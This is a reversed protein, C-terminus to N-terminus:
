KSNKDADGRAVPKQRNQRPQRLPAVRRWEREARAQFGTLRVLPESREARGFVGGSHLWYGAPTFRVRHYLASPSLRIVTVVTGSAVLARAKAALRRAQWFRGAVRVSRRRAGPERFRLFPQAPPALPPLPRLDARSGRAMGARLGALLPEIDGPELGGAVMHRLLRARQEAVLQACTPELAEPPAHKRLFLVTSAGIDELTVPARDAQRRPSAAFGHQVQALPVVATKLGKGALRMNLDTEDHFFAFGPDFGGILAVHQRRFACNTGMTKVAHDAPPDPIFPATGRVPIPLDQGTPAVLAARFQYSIGNRGRVYGGAAGVSPDAFPGTLHDLWSPEPVADDDIFAVIVGSAAAIGLNRAASINPADFGVLKVRSAIAMARVARLGAPDAVVVIEFNPYFLQGIATLCRVLLGARGRSVVVVSVAPRSM